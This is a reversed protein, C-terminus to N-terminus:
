LAYKQFTVMFEDKRERAVSAEMGNSLVLVGNEHKLYQKVHKINVLFSRHTRMFVPYKELLQEFHKLNRSVMIPRPKGVLSIHTYSGDAAFCILEDVDVFLVGESTSLAIKRSERDEYHSKLVDLKQNVAGEKRKSLKECSKILLDIDIPKLLYDLASLQFAKIAYEQYATTFIIEFDPIEFFNLIQLGSYEPMEIDLFVVDPKLDKILEAAAPLNSAQGVVEVQPCYDALLTSLISRAKPEDDVIIAKLQAAM